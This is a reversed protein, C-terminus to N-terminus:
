TDLKRQKTREVHKATICFGVTVIMVYLCILAIFSVCCLVVFVHKLDEEHM